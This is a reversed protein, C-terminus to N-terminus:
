YCSFKYFPTKSTSQFVLNLAYAKYLSTFTSGLSPLALTPKHSLSCHVWANRFLFPSGRFPQTSPKTKKKKKKKPSPHPHLDKFPAEGLKMCPAVKYSSFM